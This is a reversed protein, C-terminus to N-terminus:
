PTLKVLQKGFNKGKLLGLFASPASALGESITERPRLKGAAVLGALEALAEGWVEMHESVIFGEIKLRNVLILAPNALPLPQGDYGAIMFPLQTAAVTVVAAASVWAAGAWDLARRGRGNATLVYVALPLVFLGPYIKLSFGIGLLVAACVASVRLRLRPRGTDPHPSQGYAMVAVAAVSTFVVPLEWNHFSYLVLPPAAAWLMAWWRTMCALLATTAFAFPALIAASHLLFSLDSHAGLSGLWILMGSLVPYEVVGGFLHGQADIGGHVYPLLHQDLGRTTWLQMLDSYCPIITGRPGQPFGSSRGAADFSPGGCVAKAHLGWSVTVATALLSITLVLVREGFTLHGPGPVASHSPM